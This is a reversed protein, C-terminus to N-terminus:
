AVSYGRVSIVVADRGWTWALTPGSSPCPIAEHLSPCEKSSAGAVALVWQGGFYLDNIVRLGFSERM